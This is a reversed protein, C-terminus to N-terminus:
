QVPEWFSATNTSLRGDAQLARLRGLDVSRPRGAPPESGVVANAAPPSAPAPFAAPPTSVAAPPSARGAAAADRWPPGGAALVVGAAVLLALAATCRPRPLAACVAVGLAFLAVSGCAAAAGMWPLLVLSAALGGPASGLADGCAVAAGWTREPAGCTRLRAVALPVYGGAPVGAAFCALVVPWPHVVGGALRVLALLLAGHVVVLLPTVWRQLAGGDAVRTGAREALRNGAFMGGLYLSSALGALLYLDGCRTELVRMLALLGTLGLFGGAALWGVALRGAAREGRGAAAPLLWLVALVLLPLAMGGHASLWDAGRSLPQAPWEVHLAEILGARQVSGSRLGPRCQDLLEQARLPDYLESVAAAPLRSVGLRAFRAAAEEPRALAGGRGGVLWWGGAGPALVGGDPWVERSAALISGALRRRELSWAGPPGSVPLAAIGDPRLVAAVPRLFPTDLMAAGVATSPPAPWLLILDYPASMAAGDALFRQPGAPAAEVGAVDHGAQAALALVRRAYVPDDHCWVVRTRPQFERIAVAVALPARGLLLANTAHPRQSLLLAAVEASRDPEPLTEVAGGASLVYFTGGQTGYLCTAAPTVFRGHPRSGPFCRAWDADHGGELRAGAALLATVLVGAAVAGATELAYANAVSGGRRACRRAAAPFLFGTALSIPANALLSGALLAGLPLSVAVSVGLLGRLADILVAQLLFLPAYLLLAPLPRAALAEVVRDGRRSRALAAGIGVWLLWTALFLGVGTGTAEVRWLFRRLLLTQAALTVFGVAAAPWGALFATGTMRIAYCM